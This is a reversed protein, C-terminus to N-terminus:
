ILDDQESPMVMPAFLDPSDYYAQIRQCSLDFFEKNIECGIFKRGNKIAALGTSGSGMFTDLVTDGHNTTNNILREMIHTPKVSPHKIDSKFNTSIFWTCKTDYSGKVACDKFIHVAYEKDPLWQNNTLPAPCSKLMVIEDFNYGKSVAWNIVDLKMLKNCCIIINIETLKSLIKEYFDFSLEFDTTTGYDLNKYYDRKAAFGRGHIEMKYPPDTCLLDITDIDNIIENCDGHYLTCDGITVSEM